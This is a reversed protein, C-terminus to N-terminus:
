ILPVLLDSDSLQTSASSVNFCLLHLVVLLLFGHKELVVGVKSKIGKSIQKM